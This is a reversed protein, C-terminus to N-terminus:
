FRYGIEAGFLRPDLVFVNTFNGSSPDTFYHGTIQDNNFLNQVFGRVFWEREPGYLTMQLNVNGYSDIEDIPRNYIRAFFSTQYYYDIRSELFLNYGNIDFEHTHQAGVNLTFNPSNQLENGDLDAPVGDSVTHPFDLGQERLADFGAALAECIGFGAFAIGPTEAPIFPIGAADLAAAAGSSLLDGGGNHEVVCNATNSIDKILTVDDSGNTPDRGDVIASDIISTNLYSMALNFQLSDTPQALFEAELGWIRADINDNVSTRNVIRSVQLGTYDYYFGTLSAQLRGDLLENRTGIEYANVFEPAFNAETGPFLAPDIPPNIGGSKFGRSYSFYINTLDTFPVDPTWQVVFRGTVEQFTVDAERFEQVGDTLPDKDVGALAATADPTGLPVATDFLVQRDRLSKEDITYRIGGTLKITETLDYYAEGFFATSQLEFLDTESNFYPAVLGIGDVGSGVAAFYDLQNAVVYYNTATEFNLYYAGVLFNLPGDFNSQIRAEISFQEAEVDSQDYGELFADRSLVNGGIVGTNSADIASIPILGDNFLVGATEPFLEALLDPQVYPENSFISNYDQQSLVMTDQYGGELFFTLSDTLDQTFSVMVFTEDSEYVPDFDLNVQRLDSPNFANVNGGPGFFPALGLPGLILDSSLLGGLTANGNTTEFELTDPLCGLVASPDRNCLQKASRVRDSDEKFFSGIVDLTTRETPTWRISGRIAYSNRGDINEGSFINESYGDRNLYIGAVRIGLENEIIPINVHGNVRVHDFNGYEVNVSGGFADLEPRATIINVVGGTANRGFLTGQPGRLVEARQVDYFETEFLRPSQLFVNNVHISAGTDASTAVLTSGIGRIQLNSGTFNGKTFSLNPTNFQIDSFTEIQRADLADADLSTVAIPVDLLSQETRQATVTMREIRGTDRVVTPSDADQAWATAPALSMITGLATWGAVTQIRGFRM